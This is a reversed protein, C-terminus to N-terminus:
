QNLVVYLEGGVSPIPSWSQYEPFLFADRAEAESRVCYDM